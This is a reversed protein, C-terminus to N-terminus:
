VKRTGPRLVRGVPMADIVQLGAAQACSRCHVTGHSFHGRRGCALLQENTRQPCSPRRCLDLFATCRVEAGTDSFAQAAHVMRQNRHFGAGNGGGNWDAPFTLIGFGADRWLREAMADAGKDCHGSLLLPKVINEAGWTRWVDRFVSRMTPEDDWTRAGTVLVIHSFTAPTRAPIM